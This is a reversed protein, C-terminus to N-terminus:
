PNQSPQVTRQLRDLPYHQVRLRELIEEYLAEDMNPTRSLIWLYDRSPHGVVAYEYDAGLDIIWYDGWVPGFFSVELKANSKVDVVRARGVAKNVRGDLTKKHCKNVVQISGDDLLSYTATTGTCDLQFWQPFAAIEYWTGLYRNIDVSEVTKLPPLDYRSSTTGCSMLLLLLTFVLINKM